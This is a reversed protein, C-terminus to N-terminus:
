RATGGTLESAAQDDALTRVSEFHRDLAFWYMPIVALEAGEQTRVRVTELERDWRLVIPEGAFTTNVSGADRLEQSTFALADEGAAVSFVERKPPHRRDSTKRGSVGQWTGAGYLRMLLPVSTPALLDMWLSDPRARRWAEVTAYVAPVPKLASGALPGHLARGTAVSWWTQTERDRMVATDRWLAATNDFKLVDGEVRRSWAAVVHTLACRAVVYPEGGASDNVVEFRDLLGIPYARPPSLDPLGILYQRGRPPHSHRELPVMPPDFASPFKAPESMQVIPDGGVVAVRPKTRYQSAFCGASLLAAALLPLLAGRKV